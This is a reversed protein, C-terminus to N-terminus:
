EEEQHIIVLRGQRGDREITVLGRSMLARVQRADLAQGCGDFFKEAMRSGMRPVWRGTGRSKIKGLTEIQGTTLQRM